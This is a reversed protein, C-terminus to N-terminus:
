KGKPKRHISSDTITIVSLMTKGDTGTIVIPVRGCHPAGVIKFVGAKQKKLAGSLTYTKRFKPFSM